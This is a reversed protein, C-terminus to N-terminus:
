AGDRIPEAMEQLQTRFYTLRQEDLLIDSGTPCCESGAWGVVPRIRHLTNVAWVETGALEAPRVRESRVTVGSARACDLLLGATVSVLRPLVPDPFCLEGGRWWLLGAHATELVTGELTRLVADDGGEARARERLAALTALDPGKCRPCRRPDAEPGNWLRIGYQPAPAPRLWLVLPSPSGRHAEIRPFWRGSRPLGTRVDALFRSLREDTVELALADCSAWFRSEHRTLGAVRGDELLFSEVVVAAAPEPCGPLPGSEGWGVRTNPEVM